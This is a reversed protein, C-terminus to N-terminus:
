RLAERSPTLLMACVRELASGVDGPLWWLEYRHEPWVTERVLSFPHGQLSRWVDTPFTEAAFWLCGDDSGPHGQCSQLTVIGADRLAEVVPVMLTDPLGDAQDTAQEPLWCQYAADRLAKTTSDISLIGSDFQFGSGGFGRHSELRDAAEELAERRAEAREREVIPLIADAAIYALRDGSDTSLTWAEAQGEFRGVIASKLRDRLAVGGEVDGVVPTEEWERMTM